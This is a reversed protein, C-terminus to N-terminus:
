RTTTPRLPTQTFAKICGSSLKRKTEMNKHSINKSFTVALSTPQTNRIKENSREYIKKFFNSAPHHLPTMNGRERSFRKIDVSNTFDRLNVAHGRSERLNNLQRSM